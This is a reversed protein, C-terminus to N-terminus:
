VIAGAARDTSAATNPAALRITMETVETVPRVSALKSLLLWDEIRDVAYQTGKELSSGDHHQREPLANLRPNIVPPHLSAM